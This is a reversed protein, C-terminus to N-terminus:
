FRFIPFGFLKLYTKSAIFDFPRVPYGLDALTVEAPPLFVNTKNIIVNYYIDDREVSYSAQQSVV